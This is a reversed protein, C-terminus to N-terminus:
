YPIGIRGSNATSLVSSSFLRSPTDDCGDSSILSALSNSLAVNPRQDVIIFLGFILPCGVVLCSTLMVVNESDCCAGTGVCISKIFESLCCRNSSNTDAKKPNDTNSKASTQTGTVAASPLVEMCLTNATAELSVLEDLATM